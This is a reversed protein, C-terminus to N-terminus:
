WKTRLSRPRWDASITRTRATAPQAPVAGVGALTPVLEAGADAATPINVAGLEAALGIRVAFGEEVGLGLASCGPDLAIACFTVARGVAFGFAVV